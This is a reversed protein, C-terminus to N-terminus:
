YITKAFKKLQIKISRKGEAFSYGSVTNKECIVFMRNKLLISLCLVVFDAFFDFKEFFFRM